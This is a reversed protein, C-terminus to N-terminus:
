AQIEDRQIQSDPISMKCALFRFQAIQCQSDKDDPLLCQSNVTVIHHCPSDPIINLRPLKHIQFTMDGISCKLIKWFVLSRTMNPYKSDPSM